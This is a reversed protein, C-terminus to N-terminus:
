GASLPFGEVYLIDTLMWFHISLLGWSGVLLLAMTLSVAAIQALTMKRIQFLRVILMNWCCVLLLLWFLAMAAFLEVAVIVWGM